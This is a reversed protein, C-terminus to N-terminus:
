KSTPMVAPNFNNSTIYYYTKGNSIFQQEIQGARKISQVSENMLKIYTEFDARPMRSKSKLDRITYKNLLEQNVPLGTVLKIYGALTLSKLNGRSNKLSLAQGPLTLYNRRLKRRFSSQDQQLNEGLMMSFIDMVQRYEMSNLVVAYQLVSSKSKVIDDPVSAEAYYKFANHPMRDAVEEGVPPPLMGELVPSLNKRAIGSLRFASDLTRIQTRIDINTEKIYRRLAVGMSQNSNVSGKTPFVVGGQILSNRPFDLYYSISDQLSTNYSQFNKLGEGKVMINKRYEAARVASESVLKRAQIVFNNFTQNYDSYVQLALIRADNVAVQEALENILYNNTGGMEGTSGILVILNTENKKDKFLGLGAKLAGLVPQETVNGNCKETNKAQNYFFTMLRRYDNQIPNVFIGQVTCGNQGRYVVGGYSVKTGREFDNFLNEFSSITNTLGSFYRTMAAGGDVVFVVNIKNKNKRLKLYQEFSLFSGNITLLKNNKKNYVDNALGIDFNGGREALIPTSRLVINDAQLLPDVVFTNSGTIGSQIATTTSDDMDYSAPKSSTIYLRSGWDHVAESSVWGYISKLATDAVLQDDGGILYKKGDESKKFIYVIEHLRVKTRKDKLEPSNYVFISDTSDYFFRNDVLPSKGTIVGIAKQPYGTKQNSFSRQWLLLKSKPAWGYSIASKKDIIKRGRIMGAKYKILKLYGNEEKSVYFPEMLKIKKMILSGGPSTTTYNDDRDSFVIWPLSSSSTKENVNISESPKLYTKPMTKVKKGFSAPSQAQVFLTASLLISLIFYKKM